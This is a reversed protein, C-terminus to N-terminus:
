GGLPERAGGVTAIVGEVQVVAQQGTEQALDALERAASKVKHRVTARRIAGKVDDRYYMALAGLAVGSLFSLAHKM